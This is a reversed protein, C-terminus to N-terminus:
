PGRRTRLPHYILARHSTLRLQPCLGPVAYCSAEGRQAAHSTTAVRHEEGAPAGRTAPIGRPTGQMTDILARTTSVVLSLGSVGAAAALRGEPVVNQVRESCAHGIADVARRRRQVCEDTGALAYSHALTFRGSTAFKSATAPTPRAVTEYAVLCKRLKRVPTSFCRASLPRSTSSPAFCLHTQSRHCV